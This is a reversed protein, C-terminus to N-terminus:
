AINISLYESQNYEFGLVLCLVWGGCSMQGGFNQFYIEYKGNNHPWQASKNGYYLLPLLIYVLMCFARKM